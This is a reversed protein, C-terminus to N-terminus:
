ESADLISKRVTYRKVSKNTNGISSTNVPDVGYKKQYAFEKSADNLLPVGVIVGIIVAASFIITTQVATEGSRDAFFRTVFKSLCNFTM